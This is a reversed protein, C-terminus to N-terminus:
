GILHVIFIIWGGYFGGYFWAVIEFLGTLMDRVRVGVVRESGEDTSEKLLNVVQVHNATTAGLRAATMAISVCMRADEHQGIFCGHWM